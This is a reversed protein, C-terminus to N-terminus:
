SKAGDDRIVAFDNGPSFRSWSTHNPDSDEEIEGEPQGDPSYISSNPDVEGAPIVGGSNPDDEVAGGEPITGDSSYTSNPDTIPTVSNPDGAPAIDGGDGTIASPSLLSYGPLVVYGNDVGVSYCKRPPDVFGNEQSYLSYWAWRITGGNDIWGWNFGYEGDPPTPVSFEWRGSSKISPLMKFGDGKQWGQGSFDGLCYLEGGPYDPCDTELVSFTIVGGEMKYRLHDNGIWGEPPEPQNADAEKGGGNYVTTSNDDKSIGCCCLCFCFFCTLLSVFLNYRKM